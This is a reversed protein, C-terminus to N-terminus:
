LLWVLLALAAFLGLWMAAGTTVADRDYIRLARDYMALQDVVEDLAKESARLSLVQDRAGHALGVADAAEALSVLVGSLAHEARAVTAEHGRVDARTASEHQRRKREVEDLAGRRLALERRARGLAAQTEDLAKQLGDLESQQLGREGTITQVKEAPPPVSARSLARLEIEARQVKAKQRKLAADAKQVAAEAEREAQAFPELAVKLETSQRELEAVAGADREILAATEAQARELEGQRTKVLLVREVLSEHARVAPDDLLARGLEKLSGEYADALESARQEIPGRARWLALARLAVHIVYRAPDIGGEATGYDALERARREEDLPRASVGKSPRQSTPSADDVPRPMSARVPAPKQPEADLELEPGGTADDFEGDLMPVGPLVGSPRPRVIEHGRQLDDLGFDNSPARTLAALPDDPGIRSLEQQSPRPRRPALELDGLEYSKEDDTDPTPRSASM